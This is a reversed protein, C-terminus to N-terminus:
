QSDGTQNMMMPAPPGQLFLYEEAMNGETYIQHLMEADGSTDVVASVLNSLARRVHERHFKGAAAVAYMSRNIDKAYESLIPIQLIRASNSSSPTETPPSSSESSPVFYISVM